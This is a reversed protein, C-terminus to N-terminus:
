GVTVQLTWEMEQLPPLLGFFGWERMAEGLDDPAGIAPELALNRYPPTGAGSWGGANIWLGLHTIPGRWGIEWWAGTPHILRAWAAAPRLFLKLAWGGEPDPEQLDLLGGEVPLRPWSFSTSQPSVGIATAVRGTAPGPLLLRTGPMLPFLPHAAWLFYLTHEARNRVRYCIRVVPRDAELMLAREFRYPLSRGELVGTVILLKEEEIRAQIEWPQSWLEGHDPIPTGAWPDAPYPGPAIAPFCEDWGGLDFEQVYSAGPSPPQWPLYPNRWLWSLGRRRDEWAAIKGGLAPIITLALPGNEVRLAPLGDETTEEIHLAGMAM